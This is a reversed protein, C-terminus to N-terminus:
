SEPRTEVVESTAGGTQKLFNLLQKEYNKLYYDMLQSWDAKDNISNKIVKQGDIDIIVSNDYDKNKLGVSFAVVEDYRLNNPDNIYGKIHTKSPDRPKAMYKALIYRHKKM